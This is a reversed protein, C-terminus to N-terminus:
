LSEVEDNYKKWDVGLAKAILKECATAVQHAEHYPAHPDDGPEEYFRCGCPAFTKFQGVDSKIQFGRAEEYDVDFRDIAKMKVGALRCMFFEIIEHLFVLVPYRKDSMKSVRFNLLKQTVSPLADTSWFYDGCTDYRMKKHPIERYDILM